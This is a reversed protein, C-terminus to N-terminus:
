LALCSSSVMMHSSNIVTGFSSSSGSLSDTVESFTNKFNQHKPKERFFGINKKAPKAIKATFLWLKESTDFQIQSSFIGRIDQKWCM